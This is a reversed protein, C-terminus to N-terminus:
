KKDLFTRLLDNSRDEINDIIVDKLLSDLNSTNFLLGPSCEKWTKMCLYLFLKAENNKGQYQYAEAIWLYAYGRNSYSLLDSPSKLILNLSTKLKELAGEYDHKKILCKAANGISSSDQAWNNFIELAKNIDKGSDRLVLAKTYLLSQFDWLDNKDIGFMIEYKNIIELAKNYETNRWAIFASISLYASYPVTNIECHEKYKALYSKVRNNDGNQSVLDILDCLFSARKKVCVVQSDDWDIQDLIRIGLSIYDQHQGSDRINAFYNSILNFAENYNRSCICTDIAEVLSIVDLEEAPLETQNNLLANVININMFIKLVARFYPKQKAVDYRKHVFERVLPHVQYRYLGGEGISTEILNLNELIGLYKQVKDYTGKIFPSIQSVTLPCTSEALFRIIEKFSKEVANAEMNNWISAFYNEMQQDDNIIHSNNDMYYKLSRKNKQVQGIILGMWWPHGKTHKIISKCYSLAIPDELDIGRNKFFEIGEDENLGVLRITRFNCNSKVISMRSTLIILSNHEKELVYDVLKKLEGTIKDDFTVYADVNDFVILSKKNRIHNYFRTITGEIKEDKYLAKTETNHSLVELVDLLKVHMTDQLEKCDIWLCSEFQNNQSKANRRYFEAALATKGQGGIGSISAVSLGTRSLESLEKQRGCWKTPAPLPDLELEKTICYANLPSTDDEKDINRYPDWYLTFIGDDHDSEYLTNDPVFHGNNTSVRCYCKVSKAELNFVYITYRCGSVKPQGAERYEKEPYGLGTILEVYAHNPDSEQHLRATHVHGHLIVDTNIKRKNLLNDRVKSEDDQNLWSFPHHSLTISLECASLRASEQRIYEIQWDAIFLNKYDDNDVTSLASNILNFNIKSGRIDLQKVGFGYKLQNTDKKMYSDTFSKYSEFRPSMYKWENDFFSNSDKSGEKVIGVLGKILADRPIDHNGPVIIINDNDIGTVRIISDMMQSASAYGESQGRNIIDGTLALADIQLNYRGVIKKIDSVLEKHIMTENAPASCQIHLDSLHLLCFEKM